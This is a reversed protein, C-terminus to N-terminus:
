GHALELQRLAAGEYNRSLSLIHHGEEVLILEADAIRDAATNAHEIPVIADNTGHAILTPAAVSAFPLPALRRQNTEDNTSGTERHKRPAISAFQEKMSQLRGADSKVWLAEAKKQEQTLGEAVGGVMFRTMLDPWRMVIQYSLWVFLDSEYTARRLESIQTEFPLVIPADLLLATTREPYRAAFHVASPGGSSVGMIAAREIDLEDLIAAYLDAQSEPTPGSQLPTRLYGPRSPALLECGGDRLHRCWALGLDFGGPAGHIALVPPGHGERAIQVEGRTTKLVTAREDLSAMLRNSWSM